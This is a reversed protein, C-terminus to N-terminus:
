PRPSRPDHDDDPVHFDEVSVIVRHNPALDAAAVRVQAAIVGVGAPYRGVVGIILDNGRSRL